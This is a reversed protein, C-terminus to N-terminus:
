LYHRGYRADINDRNFFLFFDITGFTRDIAPEGCIKAGARLYGKIIPPISKAATKEDELKLNPDFGDIRHTPLPIIRLTEELGDKLKLYSYIRSANESDTSHVSGCGMLFKVDHDKMFRGLGIWLLSIVSGDRYDPHVCSRGIEAIEGQIHYVNGLIFESESYFGSNALATSKRLLRYTGVVENDNAQDVVILHDCYLDYEDRDKQAERSQPLGEGLELNFVNYRLSLAKEIELQNEAIRVTLDRKQATQTNKM